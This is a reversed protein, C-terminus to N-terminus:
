RGSWSWARGDDKSITDLLRNEGELCTRSLFVSSFKLTPLGVHPSQLTGLVSGCILLGHCLVSLPRWPHPSLDVGHGNCLPAAQKVTGRHVHEQTLRNNVIITLIEM